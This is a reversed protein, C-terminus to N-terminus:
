NEYVPCVVGDTGNDVTFPTLVGLTSPLTANPVYVNASASGVSVGSPVTVTISNAASATCLWSGNNGSATSTFNDVVVYTGSATPDAFSGTLTLSSGAASAASISLSTVGTASANAALAARTANKTWFSIINTETGGSPFVFGPFTPNSGSSSASQVHWYVGPPITVSSPLFHTTGEVGSVQGGTTAAWARADLVLAGAESYIGFQSISGATNNGCQTTVKSVTISYPLVFQYCILTGASQTSGAATNSSPGALGGTLLFSYYSLGPGFFGSGTTLTAAPSNNTILVEGASPNSVTIGTGSVFNVVSSSTLDTGNVEFISASATFEIVGGGEDTITVGSGAVLDQVVQSSAQAGNVELLLPQTAPFWSIVTNPTWSDLNFTSGSAVQQNNPGFARQGAATFGTVKYYNNQPSMVLNSWVYQGAVVNGNADLNVTIDIGSCVTGVGSVSCDQSLHMTLYGSALPNGLSDQFSGGTLETKTAAM